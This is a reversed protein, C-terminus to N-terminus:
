RQSGASTGTVTGSLAGSNQSVNLQMTLVLPNPASVTAAVTGGNLGTVVGHYPGFTVSGSWLSVGGGGAASGDLVVTLPTASTNQLQMTLTVQVAGQGNPNTTTQSGTLPVTFPATPV